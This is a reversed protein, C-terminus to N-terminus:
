AQKFSLGLVTVFGLAKHPAPDTRHCQPLFISRLMPAAHPQRMPPRGNELKVRRGSRALLLFILEL